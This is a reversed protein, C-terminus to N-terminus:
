LTTLVLIAFMAQSFILVFLYPMITLFEGFTNDKIEIKMAVSQDGMSMFPALNSGETPPTAPRDFPMNAASHGVGTLVLWYLVYTIM